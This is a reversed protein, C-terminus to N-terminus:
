MYKWFAPYVLRQLDVDHKSKFSGIGFGCQEHRGCARVILIGILTALGSLGWLLMDFMDRVETVVASKSFAMYMLLTSKAWRRASICSRSFFSKARRRDSM